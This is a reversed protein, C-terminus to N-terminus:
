ETVAPEKRIQVQSLGMQGLNASLCVSHLACGRLFPRTGIFVNFCIVSYYTVLNSLSYEFDSFHLMIPSICFFRCVSGSGDILMWFTTLVSKLQTKTTIDLRLLKDPSVSFEGRWIWRHRWSASASGTESTQRWKWPSCHRVCLMSHSQQIVAWVAGLCWVICWWGCDRSYMTSLYCVKYLLLLREVHLLREIHWNTLYICCVM